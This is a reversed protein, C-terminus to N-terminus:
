FSIDPTSQGFYTVTGVVFLPVDIMRKLACTLAVTAIGNGPEKGVTRYSLVTIFDVGNFNSLLSLLVECGMENYKFYMSKKERRNEISVPEEYIDRPQLLGLWFILM